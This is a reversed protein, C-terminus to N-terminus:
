RHCTAGAPPGDDWEYQLQKDFTGDDVFDNVAASFTRAIGGSDEISEYFYWDSDLIADHKTCRSSFSRYHPIDVAPVGKYGDSSSAGLYWIVNPAIDIVPDTAHENGVTALALDTSGDLNMVYINDPEDPQAYTFGDCVTMLSAIRAGNVNFTPDDPVRVTVSDGVRYGHPENLCIRAMGSADREVNDITHLARDGTLYNHVADFHEAVLKGWQEEHSACNTPEKDPRSTSDDQTQREFLEWEFHEGSIHNADHCVSPPLGVLSHRAVCTDPGAFAGWVGESVDVLMDQIV